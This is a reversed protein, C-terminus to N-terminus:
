KKETIKIENSELAIDLKVKNAPLVARYWAADPAAPLKYVARWIANPLDHYAALVGIAVADPSSKRRIAQSAGPRLIYEDRALLDGGLLIKDGTQLTLFDADQFALDSKLEYIRVQLPSARKGTSNVDASARITFDLKSQEKVAPAGSSACASLLVAALATCLPLAIRRRVADSIPTPMSVSM